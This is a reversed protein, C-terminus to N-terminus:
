SLFHQSNGPSAGAPDFWATFIKGSEFSFEGWSSNSIYIVFLTTFLIQSSVRPRPSSSDIGQKQKSTKTINQGDLLEESVDKEHHSKVTQDGVNSSKVTNRQLLKPNQSQDLGNHMTVAHFTTPVGYPYGHYCMGPHCWMLPTPVAPCQHGFYKEWLRQQVEQGILTTNALSFHAMHVGGPFQPANINDQYHNM